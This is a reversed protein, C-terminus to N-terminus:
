PEQPQTLRQITDLLVPHEPAEKLAAKWVKRAQRTQGLAWLVEGLHAAIEPDPNSTHAQQLNSLAQQYQGLRFHVWGLSDLTAVDDPQLAHARQILELAEPLRLNRDALTYGLANLAIAHEPNDAIIARLDTELQPLDDRQDALMARTYLLNHHDPFQELAQRIRQWATEEHQHRALLETELQWLSDALRPAELRAQQFSQSFADAANDLLLLEGLRQRAQLYSRGPRVQGYASLAPGTQELAELCRGLNLRATDTFRNRGILEELYIMAEQWAELDMNLYALALRYDDNDPEDQLLQLFQSRAQPLRKLTILQHALAQRAPSYGPYLRVAKRLSDLAQEPRELQQYLQAQLMLAPLKRSSKPLDALLKLAAEPQDNQLLIARALLLGEQEPHRQQLHEFQQLLAPQLDSDAQSATVVLFDFHSDSDPDLQIAQELHAMSQQPQRARILELALTRHADANDPASQVWHRANSLALPRQDLLNAIQWARESVRPSATAEAQQSYHALALEPQNRQGALEAVLLQYLSDATFRATTVPASHERPELRAAATAVAEIPTDPLQACGVLILLCLSLPSLYKKMTPRALFHLRTRM